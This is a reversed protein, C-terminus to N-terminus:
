EGGAHHHGIWESPGLHRRQYKRRVPQQEAPLDARRQRYYRPNGRRRHGRRVPAHGAPAGLREDASWQCQGDADLHEHRGERLSQFESVTGGLQLSQAFGASANAIVLGTISSGAQLELLTLQAQSLDMAVAGGAGARIIGGNVINVPLTTGQIAVAGNGGEILGYNVIPVSLTKLAIGAGGLAGGSGDGGRVIGTANNTFSQVGSVGVGIFAGAGGAVGLGAGGQITGNNVVSANGSVQMGLGGSLGGVGSSGGTITGNNILNGNNQINAGLARTSTGNSGSGGTITAYNTITTTIGGPSATTLGAQGTFNIPDDNGHITGYLTVLGAPAIGNTSFGATDIILTNTSAPLAGTIAIDATLTITSSLDGDANADLIAQRLEADTGAPYGRAWATSPFVGALVLAMGGVGTLLGRRRAIPRSVSAHRRHAQKVSNM